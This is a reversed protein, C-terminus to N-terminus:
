AFHFGNGGRNNFPIATNEDCPPRWFGFQGAFPFEGPSLQLLSFGELGAEFSFEHFFEANFSLDSVVKERAEIFVFVAAKRYLCEVHSPNAAFNGENVVVSYSPDSDGFEFVVM